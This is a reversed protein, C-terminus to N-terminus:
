KEDMDGLLRMILLRDDESPNYFLTDVIKVFTALTCHLLPEERDRKTFLVAPRDDKWEKGEEENRELWERLQNYSITKVFKNEIRLPTGEVDCERASDYQRGRRVNPFCRRLSSVIAREGRQGKDRSSKGAMRGWM